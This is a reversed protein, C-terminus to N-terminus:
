VQSIKMALEGSLAEVTCPGVNEGGDNLGFVTGHPVSGEEGSGGGEPVRHGEVDPM